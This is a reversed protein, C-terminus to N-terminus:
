ASRCPGAASGVASAGEGRGGPDSRFNAQPDKTNVINMIYLYCGAFVTISVGLFPYNYVFNSDDPAECFTCVDVHKLMQILFRIM